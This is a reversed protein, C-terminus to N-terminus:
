SQKCRVNLSFINNIHWKVKAAETDAAIRALFTIENPLMNSNLRTQTVELAKCSKRRQKQPSETTPLAAKKKAATSYALIQLHLIPYLRGGMTLLKLLLARIYSCHKLARLQIIALLLSIRTAAM